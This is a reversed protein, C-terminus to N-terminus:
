RALLDDVVRAAAGGDDLPAYHEIFSELAARHTERVGDLDQLAEALEEQSRLIPGPAQEEFDFYFGRLQTGYEELDPCFFLLPRGTLAFDFMMSSYDTILADAAAMLDQADDYSTVDIIRDRVKHPIHVTKGAVHHARMLFLVDEPLQEALEYLNLGSKFAFRNGRRANDRFTPAFLVLRKDAAVGLRARTAARREALGSGALVDNRPYGVELVEGTFRFASRFRETAYPSPSLLCSWYGTQQTVRELYGPKRGEHSLADHQMRKLPTGHWSQLYFTRKSPRLDLGLNQDSVWYRARGLEWYYRPTRPEVKRTRPDTPRFTSTTSWVTRLGTDRRVLEEYIARPNGAYQRGNGSEFVVTRSRPMMRALAM